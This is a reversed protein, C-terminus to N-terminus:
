KKHRKALEELVKDTLDINPSAYVAQQFVVDLDNQKAVAIIVETIDRELGALGENRRRAYDEQYDRQDRRLQLQKDRLDSAQARAKDAAMKQSAKEFKKQEDQLKDFRTKLAKSRKAFEAELEKLAAKGQPSQSILRRDDVYGLGGAYAAGVAGASAFLAGFLATRLMTKYCQSNM